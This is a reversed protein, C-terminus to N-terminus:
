EKKKTDCENHIYVSSDRKKGFAFHVNKRERQRKSSVSIKHNQGACKANTETNKIPNKYVNTLKVCKHNSFFSKLPDSHSYTHIERTIKIMKNNKVNM